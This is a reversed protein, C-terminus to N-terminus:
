PQCFKHEFYTKDIKKSNKARDNSKKKQTHKTKRELGQAQQLNIKMYQDRFPVQTM